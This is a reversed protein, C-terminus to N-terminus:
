AKSKYIDRRNGLRVVLVRLTEDQLDCILRFDGVRYCWFEGLPGKLAKGLDRPNKLNVVREELYNVLRKASQRDLKRLQNLATETYDIEWNL